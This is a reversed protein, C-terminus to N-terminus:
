SPRRILMAEERKAIPTDPKVLAAEADTLTATHAKSPGALSTHGADFLKNFPDLIQL